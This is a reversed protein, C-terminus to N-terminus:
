RSLTYRYCADATYIACSKQDQSKEEERKKMSWYTCAWGVTVVALLLLSLALLVALIAIPIMNNMQQTIKIESTVAAQSGVQM